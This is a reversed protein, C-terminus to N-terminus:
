GEIATQLLTLEGTISNAVSQNELNTASELSLEAALSVNNGDAGPALAEPLIQASATGGTALAHALSGEFTVVSATFGPTAENAVNNAIVQQRQEIADLAFNLIRIAELADAM